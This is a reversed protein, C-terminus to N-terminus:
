LQNGTGPRAAVIVPVPMGQFMCVRNLQENLHYHSYSVPMGQFMCVRNLKDNLHSHSYSVPMGQFM